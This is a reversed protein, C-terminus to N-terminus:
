NNGLRENWYYKLAKNIKAINFTAEASISISEDDDLKACRGFYQEAEEETCYDDVYYVTTLFKKYDERSSFDTKPYENEQRNDWKNKCDREAVSEIVAKPDDVISSAQTKLRIAYYHNLTGGVRNEGQIRVTVRSYIGDGLNPGFFNTEARRNYDGVELVRVESPEYFETSAILLAEYLDREDATLLEVPTKEVTPITNAPSNSANDCSVFCICFLLVCTLISLLKKM